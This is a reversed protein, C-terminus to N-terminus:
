ERGRGDSLEELFAAKSRNPEGGEPATAKRSDSMTTAGTVMRHVRELQDQLLQRDVPALGDIQNDTLNTLLSIIYSACSMSRDELGATQALSRMTSTPQLGARGLTPEFLAAAQPAITM